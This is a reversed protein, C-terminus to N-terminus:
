VICSLRSSDMGVNQKHRPKFEIFYLFAVSFVHYAFFLPVMRTVVRHLAADFPINQQTFYHYSPLLASALSPSRPHAPLFGRWSYRTRNRCKFPLCCWVGWQSHRFILLNPRFTRASCYTTIGLFRSFLGCIFAVFWFSPLCTIYPLCPRLRLSPSIFILSSAVFFPLLDRRRTQFPLSM